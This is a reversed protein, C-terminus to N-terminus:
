TPYMELMKTYHHQLERIKFVVEDYISVEPWLQVKELDEILYLLRKTRASARIYSDITTDWYNKYGHLANILISEVDVDRSDWKRTAELDEEKLKYDCKGNIYEIRCFRFAVDFLGDEPKKEKLNEINTKYEALYNRFEYFNKSNALNRYTVINRLICWIKRHREM